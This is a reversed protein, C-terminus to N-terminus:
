LNWTNFQFHHEASAVLYDVQLKM